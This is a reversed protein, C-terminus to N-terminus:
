RSSLLLQSIFYNLLFKLENKIGLHKNILYFVHNHVKIFKGREERKYSALEAECLEMWRELWSPVTASSPTHQMIDEAIEQLVEKNDEYKAKIFEIDMDEETQHFLTTNYLQMLETTIAPDKDKILKILAVHLYFAFTIITEQDISEEGLGEAILLSLEKQFSYDKEDNLNLPDVKYLGYQISNAPFPMFIGWHTLDPETTPLASISFFNKFYNDAKKALTETHDEKALLALRINEGNLYNFELQYSRLYKENTRDNLFPKVGERLLYNWHSKCCFLSTSLWLLNEQM